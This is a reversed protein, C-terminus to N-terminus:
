LNEKKYSKKRPLWLAAKANMVPAAVALDATPRDRNIANAVVVDALEVVIAMVVVM